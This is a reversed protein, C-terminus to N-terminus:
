LLMCVFLRIGRVLDDDTITDHDVIAITLLQTNMPVTWEFNADWVPNRDKFVVKTQYVEDKLDDVSVVCYSDIGHLIDMKPLDRAEKLTLSLLYTDPIDASVEAARGQIMDRIQRVEGMLALSRKYQDIKFLKMLEATRQEHRKTVDEGYRHMVGVNCVYM